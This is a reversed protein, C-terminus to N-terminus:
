KLLLREVDSMTTRLSMVPHALFMRLYKKLFRIPHRLFIRTLYSNFKKLVLQELQHSQFNETNYNPLNYEINEFSFDKKLYGNEKCIRYLDSGPTPTAMFFGAGDLDLKDAFEFTQLIQKKTEAPFGVIFYASVLLGLRKIKEVMEAGRELNVPKKIIKNLVEQAGSEFAVTIEYCGSEKMLELMEEKLTWVALGNPTNWRIDLKREIIGKFIQEAREQNYTLNDDIFQIEKIGFNNVLYEIEDLVNGVSRTRYRNAWYNRTACFVCEFPCGRSTMVPANKKSKFTISFPVANKEYFKLPLLDYAPLPIKDLDDIFKRKPNVCSKGNVRFALGDLYRYDRKSDIDLLLRRFTDEGEALVIFDVDRNKSIIDEALYTPHVGGIVLLIAPDIKKVLACLSKVDEYLYSFLCTIGIVDPGYEKIQWAIEEETFGFYEWKKNESLRTNFKARGDLIKVEFDRRIVSALYALGLPMDAHHFHGKVVKGPPFILMVKKIKKNILM